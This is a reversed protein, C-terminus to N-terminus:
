TVVTPEARGTLERIRGTEQVAKELALLPGRGTQPRARREPCELYIRLTAGITGTGSLRWVARTGDACLIRLGQGSAVSGDVPDTYSFDDALTVVSGAYQQGVLAPMAERVEDMVARAAELPLDEYDHRAYHIRGYKTWHGQAIELVSERRAALIGLWALVAWLGDKERVHGAGTGFSEEGCLNVMGADLLNAFYKWGTPTEHVPIGLERAVVDVARSTPMSRAVGVLGRPFCRLLEANAAIIALSDSPTIFVGRGLIMNRDGDGDSAAAFDPGGPEALLDVLPRAYTLNPDPHGGGFDELPQGNIVTGAPAGLRREIIERAYPGTVAHMADFVMRFGTDFLRRIADFDFLTEILDAYVSVAHVVDLRMGSLSFTGLSSVPVDETEAIFFREIAASRRAIEATVRDPAPGGNALNVKIGFDGYPGAPNHSASLIIGAAAGNARILHSAAPTSLLGDQAVIARGVDNAAAMRLVTQIAVDNYFRGDGGLVITAGPQLELAEFTAQVFNQLYHPQRFVRVSKRLGSTGPIQDPYPTTSVTAVSRTVAADETGRPEEGISM